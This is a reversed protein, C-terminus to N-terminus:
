GPKCSVSSAKFNATIRQLWLFNWVKHVPKIQTVGSISARIGTNSPPRIKNLHNAKVEIAAPNLGSDNTM